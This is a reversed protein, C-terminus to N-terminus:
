GSDDSIEDLNIDDDDDELDEDSLSGDGADSLDGIDDPDLEDHEKYLKELLLTTHHLGDRESYKEQVAKLADLM